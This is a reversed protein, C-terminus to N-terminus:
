DYNNTAEKLAAEEWYDHMDRSDTTGNKIASSINLMAKNFEEYDITEFSIGGHLIQYELSDKEFKDANKCTAETWVGTEEMIQLLGEDEWKEMSKVYLPNITDTCSVYSTYDREESTSTLTNYYGYGFWESMIEQNAAEMLSENALYGQIDEYVQKATSISGSILAGEMGFEECENAYEGVLSSALDFSGTDLQGEALAVSYAAAAGLYPNVITAAVVVAGEATHRILKSAFEEQEKKLEEYKYIDEADSMEDSSELRHLVVHDIIEDGEGSFLHSENYCNNYEITLAGASMVFSFDSISSYHKGWTQETDVEKVAYYQEAYFDYLAVQLQSQMYYKYIEESLQTNSAALDAATKNCAADALTKQCLYMGKFIDEVDDADELGMIANTFREFEKNSDETSTFCYIEHDKDQSDVGQTEEIDILSAQYASAATWVDTCNIPDYGALKTGYKEFADEYNGALIEGWFNTGYDNERNADGILISATLEIIRDESLGQSEAYTTDYHTKVYNSAREYDTSYFVTEFPEYNNVPCPNNDTLTIKSVYADSTSLNVTFGGFHTRDDAAFNSLTIYGFSYAINDFGTGELEKQLQAIFSPDSVLNGPNNEESQYCCDSVFLAFTDYPTPTNPTTIYQPQTKLEETLTYYIYGLETMIEEARAKDSEKGSAMCKEYENKLKSFDGYNDGSAYLYSDAEEKLSEDIPYDTKRIYSVSANTNSPKFALNTLSTSLKSLFTGIQATTFGCEQLMNEQQEETLKLFSVECDKKSLSSTDIDKKGFLMKFINNMQAESFKDGIEVGKQEELFNIVDGDKMHIQDGLELCSPDFPEPVMVPTAGILENSFTNDMDLTKQEYRSVASNYVGTRDAVNQTQTKIPDTYSSYDFRAVDTELEALISEAIEVKSKVNLARQGAELMSDILSSCSDDDCLLDGNCVGQDSESPMSGSRFIQPFRNCFNKSEYATKQAKQIAENCIDLEKWTEAMEKSLLDHLQDRAMDADEGEWVEETMTSLDAKGNNIVQETATMAEDHQKKVEELLDLNWKIRGM